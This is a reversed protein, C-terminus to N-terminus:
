SKIMKMSTIKLKQIAHYGIMMYFSLMSNEGSKEEM